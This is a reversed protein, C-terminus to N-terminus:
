FMPYISSDNQRRKRRRRFLASIRRLIPRRFM